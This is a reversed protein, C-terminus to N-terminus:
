QKRDATCSEAAELINKLQESFSTRDRAEALAVPDNWYFDKVLRIVLKGNPDGDPYWGVDILLNNRVAQLLDEKLNDTQQSFPVSFDICFDDFPINWEHLINRFNDMIM